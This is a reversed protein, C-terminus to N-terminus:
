ETGLSDGAVENGGPVRNMQVMNGQSDLVLETYTLIDKPYLESSGWLKFLAQLSVGPMPCASPMPSLLQPIIVLCLCVSRLCASVQPSCFGTDSGEAQQLDGQM